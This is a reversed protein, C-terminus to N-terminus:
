KSAYWPECGTTEFTQGARLTVIDQAGVKDKVGQDTIEGNKEVHWYCLTVIGKIPGKTKYKGPKVDKGVEWTGERITDPRVSTKPKASTSTASIPASTAPGEEEPFSAKDGAGAIQMGLCLMLVVGLTGLLVLIAKKM